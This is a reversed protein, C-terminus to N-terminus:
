IKRGPASLLRSRPAVRRESMSALDKVTTMKLIWRDAGSYAPAFAGRGHVTRYNDILLLDGPELVVPILAKRLAEYLSAAAVESSEDVPNVFPPDVRLYPQERDGFLLGKRETYGDGVFEFNPAFLTEVDLSAFDVEDIDAITTPVGDPNRVCLLGFVDGRCDDMADDNHIELVQRSGHGTQTDEASQMPLISCALRGGQRHEWGIIDGMQSMVLALWFHMDVLRASPTYDWGGPTPDSLNDIPCGRLLIAPWREHSKLDWLARVVRKPLLGAGLEPANDLFAPDEISGYTSRLSEIGAAVARRESELMDLGLVCDPKRM